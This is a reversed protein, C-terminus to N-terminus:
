GNVADETAYDGMGIDSTMEHWYGGEFYARSDIDRVIQAVDAAASEWEDDSADGFYFPFRSIVAKVCKSFKEVSTNVLSVEDLDRGSQVVEGTAANLLISGFMGTYGFRLFRVDSIIFAELSEAVQYSYGVSATPVELNVVDPGLSDGAAHLVVTSYTPFDSSM